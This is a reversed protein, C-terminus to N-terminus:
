STSVPMCISSLVNTIVNDDVLLSDMMVFADNEDVIMYADHEDVIMYADDEDVIMDSDDDEYKMVMIM